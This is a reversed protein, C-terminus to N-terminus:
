QQEEKQNTEGAASALPAVLLSLGQAAWVVVKTGVAVPTPADDGVTAAWTEGRVRVEGAPELTKTVVAIEGLLAETGAVVPAGQAKYALRGVFLFFGGLAIAVGILLPRSVHADPAHPEYFYLGGLVLCVIGAATPIGHSPAKIEIAFFVFAAVLLVVGTARVPLDGFLVLSAVFAVLGLIGPLHLGPHLVEFVIGGMGLVFLVFALNPDPNV